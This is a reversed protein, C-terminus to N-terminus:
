RQTEGITQVAGFTIQFVLFRRRREEAEIMRDASTWRAAAKTSDDANIVVECHRVSRLADGFTDNLGPLGASTELALAVQEPHTSVKLNRGISGKRLERLFPLLEHDFALGAIALMLLVFPRPGPVPG